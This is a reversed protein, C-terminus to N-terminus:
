LIKLRRNQVKELKRCPFQLKRKPPDEWDRPPPPLVDGALRPFEFISNEFKSSSYSISFWTMCNMLMEMPLPFSAPNWFESVWTEWSNLFHPALTLYALCGPEHSSFYSFLLNPCTKFGCHGLTLFSTDKHGSQNQNNIKGLFGSQTSWWSEGKRTKKTMEMISAKKKNKFNKKFIKLYM